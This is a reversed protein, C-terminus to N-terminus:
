YADVSGAGNDCCLLNPVKNRIRLTPKVFGIQTAGCSFARTGTKRCFVTRFIPIKKVKEKASLFPSGLLFCWAERRHFTTFAFAFLKVWNKGFFQPKWLCHRQNCEASHPAKDTCACKRFNSVRKCTFLTELALQLWLSDEFIIWHIIKSLLFKSRVLDAQM